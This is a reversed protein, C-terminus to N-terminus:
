MGDSGIAILHIKIFASWLLFPLLSLGTDSPPNLLIQVKILSCWTHHPILNRM